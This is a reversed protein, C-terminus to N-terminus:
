GDCLVPVVLWLVLSIYGKAFVHWLFLSLSVEDRRRRAIFWQAVTM